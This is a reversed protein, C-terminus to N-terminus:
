LYVRGWIFVDDETHTVTVSGENERARNFARTFTVLSEETNEIEKKYDKMMEPTVKSLAQHFRLGARDLARALFNFEAWSLEMHLTEVKNEIKM